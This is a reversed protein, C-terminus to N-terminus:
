PGADESTRPLEISEVIEELTRPRFSDTLAGGNLVVSASDDQGIALFRTIDGEPHVPNREHVVYLKVAMGGACVVTRPRERVVGPHADFRKSESSFSRALDSGDSALILCEFPEDRSHLLTARSGPPPMRHSWFLGYLPTNPDFPDILEFGDPVRVDGGDEILGRYPPPGAGADGSPATPMVAVAAAGITLVTALFLTIRTLGM